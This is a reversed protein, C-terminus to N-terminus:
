INDENIGEIILVDPEAEPGEAEINLSMRQGKQAKAVASMLYDLNTATAGCRKKGDMLDKKYKDLIMNIIDLGKDYLETHYDNARLKKDIEKETLKKAVKIDIEHKKDKKLQKWKENCCHRRVTDTAVGFKKALEELSIEHHIYYNKIKIWDARM